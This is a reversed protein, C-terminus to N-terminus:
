SEGGGAGALARGGALLLGAIIFAGPALAALPVGHALAERAAGLALLAIAFGIATGAADLAAALPPQRSAFQEMRGLIMCNTVVLQAFLAVRAYLDFAFAEMLMTASATFTAIVLVFCPLRVAAPVFARLASVAVASGILVCGSALALGAANEVSATVAFLPCLGLGQVWAANRQWAAAKFLNVAPVM